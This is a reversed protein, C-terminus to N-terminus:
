WGMSRKTRPRIYMNIQSARDDHSGQLWLNRDCKYKPIGARLLHSGGGVESFVYPEFSAFSVLRVTPQLDHTEFTCIEHDFLTSSFTFIHNITKWWWVMQQFLHSRWIPHDGWLITFIFFINSVVVYLMQRRTDPRAFRAMQTERVLKIVRFVRFAVANKTPTNRAVFYPM